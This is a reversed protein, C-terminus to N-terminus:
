FVFSDFIEQRTKGEWEPHAAKYDPQEEDPDKWVTYKTTDFATGEELRKNYEEEQEALSNKNIILEEIAHAADRTVDVSDLNVLAAALGGDGGHSDFWHQLDSENGNGALISSLKNFETKTLGAKRLTADDVNPMYDRVPFDQEYGKTKHFEKLSNSIAAARAVNKEKKEGGWVFKRGFDDYYIQKQKQKVEELAKVDEDVEINTQSNEATIPYTAGEESLIFKQKQQPHLAELEAGWDTKKNEVIQKEEPQRGALAEIGFSGVEPKAINNVIQKNEQRINAEREYGKKSSNLAKKYKKFLEKQQKERARRVQNAGEAAAGGLALISAGLGLLKKQANM